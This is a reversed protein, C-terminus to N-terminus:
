VASKKLILCQRMHPRWMRDLLGPDNYGAALWDFYARGDEYSDSLGAEKMKHNNPLFVNGGSYASVGGLKPAKDLVVAKKGLDHTVIAATIGGLGSGAAVLDVEIDWNIRKSGM